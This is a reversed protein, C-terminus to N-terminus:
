AQASETAQLWGLAEAVTAAERVGPEPPPRLVVVVPIGLDTAAELKAVTYQGGSDKTIVADVQHDRMLRREDHYAYPGRSLIVRWRAPLPHDPRDVVRVMVSRDQWAAFAPLSQRGTTLFPRAAAEATARAAHLDPVWSWRSSRPHHQWGPRALRLLPISSRSAAVAANRSMQAAFPHTADVMATIGRAELFAVLGDPGGFGGIRVDGDPLAPRAVRGALSSVVPTSQRSLHRALERAEATGGLILVTM